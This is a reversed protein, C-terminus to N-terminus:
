KRSGPARLLPFVRELWIIFRYQVGDKKEFWPFRGLRIFVYFIMAILCGFFVGMVEDFSSHSRVAFMAYMAAALGCGVPMARVLNIKKM